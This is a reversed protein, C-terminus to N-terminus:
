KTDIAEAAGAIKEFMERFKKRDKENLVKMVKNQWELLLSFVEKISDTGLETLYLRYERRDEPNVKREIWKSKVGKSVIKAISSKDTQLYHAVGDQSIGPYLYITVCVNYMMNSMKQYSLRAKAYNWGQRSIKMMRQVFIDKEEDIM